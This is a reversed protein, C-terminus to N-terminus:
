TGSQGFAPDIVTRISRLWVLPIGSKKRLGFISVARLLAL